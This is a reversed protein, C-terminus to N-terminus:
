AAEVVLNCWHQDLDEVRMDRGTAELMRMVMEVNEVHITQEFAEGTKFQEWLMGVEVGMCFDHSERDFVLIPGSYCEDSM